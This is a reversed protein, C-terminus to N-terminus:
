AHPDAASGPHPYAVYPFTENFPVDNSSVGDGLDNPNGILEGEVVQLSADLIDDALRRGNPFGANDGGIVGLDSYGNCSGPECPPVSMNLRLEESPTVNPPQNLGDLGTLFVSVLDDRQVGPTGSHSDPVPISPYVAHVVEPLEPDDHVYGLFQTDDKPQSSNFLDKHGRPIVVENVLPNGLRSVQVNPGSFTQTGDGNEVRMSKREATTWVGIIPNATPKHKLAVNKMRVQVALSNVNFGALTDDGTESLDGGYLLDFVRLDLFFPDDSQGAWVYNPASGFPYNGADFLNGRYNPMSGTGVDDPVAMANNVLTTANKGIVQQLDYTQYFTLNPDPPDLQTVQGNNYLFTNPDGHNTFIWRYTIDPKADGDNDINIDYHVGEAWPFFNPGGAPEEFPNWSSVLTVTNTRDPSVFAYLDTGDIQPDAATLPAERHSSAFSATPALGAFMGAVLAISGITALTRIRIRTGSHQM